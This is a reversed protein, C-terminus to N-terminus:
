TTNKKKHVIKVFYKISSFSQISSQPHCFSEVSWSKVIKQAQMRAAAEIARAVTDDLAEPPGNPETGLSSLVGARCLLMINGRAKAVRKEGKLVQRGKMREQM